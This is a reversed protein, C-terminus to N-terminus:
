LQFIIKYNPGSGKGVWSLGCQISGWDTYGRTIDANTVDYVPGLVSPPRIVQVFSEVRLRRWDYYYMAYEPEDTLAALHQDDSCFKLKMFSAAEMFNPVILQRVFKSMSLDYLNILPQGSETAAVAVQNSSFM